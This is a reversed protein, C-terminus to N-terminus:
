SGKTEMRLDSVVLNHVRSLLDSVVLSHRHEHRPRPGNINYRQSKENEDYNIM